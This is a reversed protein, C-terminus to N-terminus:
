CFRQQQPQYAKNPVEKVDVVKSDGYRELYMAIAEKVAQANATSTNVNITIQLM